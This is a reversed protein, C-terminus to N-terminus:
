LEDDLHVQRRNSNQGREYPQPQMRGVTDSHISELLGVLRFSLRDTLPLGRISNIQQLRDTATSRNCDIRKFRYWQHTDMASSGSPSRSTYMLRCKLALSRHHPSEDATRDIQGASLAPRKFKIICCMKMTNAFAARLEQRLFPNCSHFNLSVVFLSDIM